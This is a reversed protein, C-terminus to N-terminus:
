THLMTTKIMFIVILSVIKRTFIPFFPDNHLNELSKSYEVDIELKYGVNNDENYNKTFKENFKCVNKKWKFSDVPLKQSM